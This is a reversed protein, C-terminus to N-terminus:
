GPNEILRSNKCDKQKLVFPHLYSALLELTEVSRPRAGRRNTGLFSPLNKISAKKEHCPRGGQYRQASCVWSYKDEMVRRLAKLIM